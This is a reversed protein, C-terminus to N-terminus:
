SKQLGPVGLKKKKEENKSQHNSLTFLKQPKGCKRLTVRIYKGHVWKM